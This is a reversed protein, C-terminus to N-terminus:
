NPMRNDGGGGPEIGEDAFFTLDFSIDDLQAGENGGLVCGSSNEFAARDLSPSVDVHAPANVNDEINMASLVGLGHADAALAAATDPGVVRPPLGCSGGGGGSGGSAEVDPFAAPLQGMRSFAALCEPTQWPWPIVLNCGTQGPLTAGCFNVLMTGSDSITARRLKEITFPTDASSPVDLIYNTSPTTTTTTTNTNIDPLSAPPTTALGYGTKFLRLWEPNDAPTQNWPDDDSYIIDRAERQLMDDTIAVGEARRARVFEGLRKTLLEFVTPLLGVEQGSGDRAGFQGDVKMIGRSASFPHVDDAELGILYPPMANEVLLAVAPELGRCGKWERMRAGARFHDTLHDNRDSWIAFTEGCFGCRSQIRNIKTNWGEMISPIIEDVGHWLRLHQRFHDKRFFSRAHAPKAACERARHAALHAESPNEENCLACRPAMDGSSSPPCYLPGFPLCTWNELLLHLSIEHRTWDYRTKFTDTCFTCQYIREADRHDVAAVGPKASGSGGGGIKNKTTRRRRPLKSRGSLGSHLSNSGNSSFSRASSDSPWSGNSSGFSIESGLLWAEQELTRLRGPSHVSPGPEAAGHDLAGSSEEIAHAIAEWSVPEQDPPSNRWRDFPTMGNENQLDGEVAAASAAASTQGDHCERSGHRAFKRRRANVFWYSIQRVTLGTREALAEKESENPYPYASREALWERLIKTSSRRHRVVKKRETAPKDSDPQSQTISPPLPAHHADM